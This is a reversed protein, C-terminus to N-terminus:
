PQFDWGEPWDKDKIPIVPCAYSSGFDSSIPYYPIIDITPIQAIDNVPVHDDNVYGGESIPFFSGYGAVKAAKWVKSVINPAYRQSMGEKHFQACEGGVM